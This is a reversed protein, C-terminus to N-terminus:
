LECGFVAGDSGLALNPNEVPTYAQAVVKAGPRLKQHGTAVVIEGAVVGNLIQVRDSHLVGLVVDRSEVSGDELLVYLLRRTGQRIIAEQPVTLANAVEGTQLRVVASMGPLLSADENPVAAKIYVIRSTADIRPDIASVRATFTKCTAVVVTVEQGVAIEGVHREPLGFVLHLPQVQTLRVIPDGPELFTGLSVQRLGLVGRFPARIETKELRTEATELEGDNAERAARANDIEQESTIESGRLAQLRALIERANRARARNVSVAARAQADDIKVLLHGEEIETGEPVDLSAIKGSIEATIEISNPSSLEGVSDLTVAMTETAVAVTQVTAPPRGTTATGGAHDSCATVICCCAVLLAVRPMGTM